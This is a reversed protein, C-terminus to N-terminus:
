GSFSCMPSCLGDKCREYGPECEEDGIPRKAPPNTAAAHLKKITGRMITVFDGSAQPTTAYAELLVQEITVVYWRFLAMTAAEGKPVSRKKGSSRTKKKAM